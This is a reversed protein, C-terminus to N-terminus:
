KKVVLLSTAVSAVMFAVYRDSQHGGYFVPWRMNRINSGGTIDKLHKGELATFAAQFGAWILPGVTGRGEVISSTMTAGWISCAAYDFRRLFGWMRDVLHEHAAQNYEDRM